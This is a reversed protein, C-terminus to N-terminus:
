VQREAGLEEEALQASASEVAAWDGEEIYEIEYNGTGTNNLPKLGGNSLGIDSRVNEREGDTSCCCPCCSLTKPLLNTKSLTSIFLVGGNEWLGETITDAALPATQRITSKRPSGGMSATSLKGHYVGFHPDLRYGVYLAYGHLKKSGPRKEGLFNNKYQNKSILCM